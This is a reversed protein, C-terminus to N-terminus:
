KLMREGSVKTSNFNFGAKLAKREREEARDEPTLKKKGIIVFTYLRFSFTYYIISLV